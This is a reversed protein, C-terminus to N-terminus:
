GGILVPGPDRQSARESFAAAPWRRRRPGAGRTSTVPVSESQVARTISVSVAAFSNRSTETDLNLPPAVHTNSCRFDSGSVTTHRAGGVWRRLYDRLEEGSRPPRGPDIVFSQIIRLLHEALEDLDDDTFGLGAWDVDFRRLM